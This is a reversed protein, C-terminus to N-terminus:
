EFIILRVMFLGGHEGNFDDNEDADFDDNGDDIDCNKVIKMVVIANKGMLTTMEIM